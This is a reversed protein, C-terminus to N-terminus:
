DQILARLTRALHARDDQSLVSLAQRELRVLETMAM